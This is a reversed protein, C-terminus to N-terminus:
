GEMDKNKKMKRNELRKKFDDYYHSKIYPVGLFVAVVIAALMKLFDTDMGIFVVTSFIVYYIIGGVVVSAMRLGFNPSIKSFIAHGIVVSCLGIVIAGRGMNIDAFGQYQALLGGALAVIGNSIMLGLVINFKTNIGQARAMKQNNGTARISAGLQTGFFVYLLAVVVAVALFLIWLANYKDLQSVLVTTTRASISINSAGSAIKLNISWCALQTLIGALIPPIGLLTHLLGTILGCIVGAVFGLLLGVAFNGGNQIFIACVIGGTAFSGDVTLDAVDLVKYTIFVGLAMLGWIIGLNVAGPLSEAYSLLYDLFQQM